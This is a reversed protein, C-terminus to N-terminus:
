RMAEHARAMAEAFPLGQGREDAELIARLIDELEAIRRTLKAHEAMLVSKSSLLEAPGIANWDMAM